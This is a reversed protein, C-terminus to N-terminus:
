WTPSPKAFEETTEVIATAADEISGTQWDADYSDDTYRYAVTKGDNDLAVVDYGSANGLATAPAVEVFTVFGTQKGYLEETLKQTLEQINM